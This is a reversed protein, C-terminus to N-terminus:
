WVDKTEKYNSVKEKFINTLITIEEKKLNTKDVIFSKSKNIYLYYTDKTNIIKYLKDYDIYEEKTTNIQFNNKKFTYKIKTDIPTDKKSKIRKYSLNPLMNTNIEIIGFLAFIFTIYDITTNNKHNIFFYIILITILINLFIRTNKTREFYYTRLFNKIITDNYITTTKIEKM